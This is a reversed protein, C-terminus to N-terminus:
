ITTRQIPSRLQSEGQPGGRAPCARSLVANMSRRVTIHAGGGPLRYTSLRCITLSPGPTEERPSDGDGEIARELRGYDTALRDPKDAGKGSDTLTDDALRGSLCRLSRM